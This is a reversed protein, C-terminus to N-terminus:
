TSAKKIRLIKEQKNALSVRVQPKKVRPKKRPPLKKTKKAVLLSITPSQTTPSTPTSGSSSTSSSTSSSGSTSAVTTNSSNSPASPIPQITIDGFPIEAVLTEKTIPRARKADFAFLITAFYQGGPDSGPVIGRITDWVENSETIQGIHIQYPGKGMGHLLLRYTGAPADPIVIIGEQESFSSQSNEVRMTLPSQKLFVLLPFTVTQSGETINSAEYPLELADLIHTIGEKKYILQHHDLSLARADLNPLVTQALVLYDGKDTTREYPEGDPYNHLLTHVASAKKVRYGAITDKRSTGFLQTFKGTLASAHQNYQSLYTNVFSMSAPPIASGSEPYLFPFTPFLDFLVPMVHRFMERETEAGQHNLVYIMKAALWFSTGQRDLEGGMLPKYADVAGQHPAGITILREINLPHDTTYIRAILGGLSHGVLQVQTLPNYNWVNEQLFASLEQVTDPVRKRWDYAFVLYDRDQALGLNHFTQQIGTYERIFSGIHWASQPNQQNHLLADENWSSLLGPILVIISRYYTALNLTWVGENDRGFYYLFPINKFLVFSPDAAHLADYPAGSQVMYGLKEWTSDCTPAPTAQLKAVQIGTYFPMHYLLYFTGEAYTIFPGDGDSILSHPCVHWTAGDTSTAMGIQWTGDSHPKAGFFLYYNGQHSMVFPAGVLQDYWTNHAPSLVLRPEQECTSFDATCALRYLSLAGNYESAFFLTYHDGEHLAYPASISAGHTFLVRQLNWAVGNGSTAYILAPQGEANASAFIAKFQEEETWIHGQFPQRFGEPVSILVPNGTYKTIDQYFAHAPQASVIAAFFYFLCVVVVYM